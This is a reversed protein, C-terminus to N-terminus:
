AADADRRRLEGSLKTMAYATFAAASARPIDGGEEYHHKSLWGGAYTELIGASERCHTDLAAAFAAHAATTRFRRGDGVEAPLAKSLFYDLVRHGLRAFFDRALVGFQKPTALRGVERQVDGPDAGFLTGLRPGVVGTLSEAAAAQAMEGLDTRKGPPAAADIADSVAGVLGVLGPPAPVAVGLRALAAPFDDARAAHPLRLLLWVAEVVTPDNAAKGLWTEAAHAAATAVQPAAAGGRILAVVQVWRRTQPLPGLRVHGM